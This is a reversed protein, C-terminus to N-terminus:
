KLIAAIITAFAGIIAAALASGLSPNHSVYSITKKIFADIEISAIISIPLVLLSIGVFKNLIIVDCLMLLVIAVILHVIYRITQQREDLESAETQSNVPTQGFIAFAIGFGLFLFLLIIGITPQINSIIVGNESRFQKQLESFGSSVIILVIPLWFTVRIIKKVVDYKNFGFFSNTKNIATSLWSILKKIMSVQGLRSKISRKNKM